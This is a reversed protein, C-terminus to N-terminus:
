RRYGAFISSTPVAAGFLPTMGSNLKPKPVPSQMGKIQGAGGLATGAMELGAAILANRGQRKQARAEEEYNQASIQFGTAERAAGERILRADEAGMRSTDAVVDAISGFSTDLGNAAAAAIQASRTQQIQRWQRMEERRGRDEADAAQGRALTANNRAVGAAYDAQQKQGIASVGTGVISTAMAIATLTAPECM